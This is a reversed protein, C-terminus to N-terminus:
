RFDETPAPPIPSNGNNGRLRDFYDKIGTVDEESFVFRLSGDLPPRRVKGTVIAWRIQSVSVDPCDRALRRLLDKWCM